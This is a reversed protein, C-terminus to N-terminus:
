RPSGTFRFDRLRDIVEVPLSAAPLKAAVEFKSTRMWAPVSGVIPACEDGSSIKIACAGVGDADLYAAIIFQLLSTRDFLTTTTLERRDHDRVSQAVGAVTAEEFSPKPQQASLSDAFAAVLVVAALRRM